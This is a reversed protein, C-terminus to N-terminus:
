LLLESNSVVKDVAFLDACPVERHTYRHGIEQYRSWWPVVLPVVEKLTKAHAIVRATRFNFGSIWDIEVLCVSSEPYRSCIEDWTLPESISSDVLRSETNEAAVMISM